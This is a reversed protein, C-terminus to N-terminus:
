RVVRTWLAPDEAGLHWLAIRRVGTERIDAVLREILEADPVWIDWAGPRSGHLTHSAPDRDLSVGGALAIDRADAYGLVIAPETGRWQYGYLPLAAVVRSAGVEAIRLDLNRAVWEPSAVPGPSTGSRHEDYLMVLILDAAARLPQAPYAATDGAPVAIVIQTAGRARTSDAIAKSVRVLLDLDSRSQGQFDLVIGSLGLQSVRHAVTRALRALAPPDNALTRIAAPNYQQGTWSTVMAMRRTEPAARAVLSDAGSELLGGPVTDLVLWHAITVDLQQAHANAADASRSDWPVVFGWFEPGRRLASPLPISACAALALTAAAVLTTRLSRSIVLVAKRVNSDRVTLVASTCTRWESEPARNPNFDFAQVLNLPHPPDHPHSIPPVAVAKRNQSWGADRLFAM